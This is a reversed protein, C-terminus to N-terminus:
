SGVQRNEGVQKLNLSVQKDSLSDCSRFEPCFDHAHYDRARKIPMQYAWRFMAFSLLRESVENGFTARLSSIEDKM